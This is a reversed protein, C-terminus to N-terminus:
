LNIIKKSQSNTLMKIYLENAIDGNRIIKVNYQQTRSEIKKSEIIDSSNDKEMFWNIYKLGYTEKFYTITEEM